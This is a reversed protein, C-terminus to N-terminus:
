NCTSILKIGSITMKTPASSALRIFDTDFDPQIWCQSGKRLIVEHVVAWGTTKPISQIIGITKAIVGLYSECSHIIEVKDGPSFYKKILWNHDESLEKFDITDLVGKNDDSEEIIISDQVLLDNEPTVYAKPNESVLVYGLKEEGEQKLDIIVKATM